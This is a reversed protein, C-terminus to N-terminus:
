KYEEPPVSNELDSFDVIITEGNAKFTGRWYNKDLSVDTITYQKKLRNIYTNFNTERWEGLIKKKEEAIKVQELYRKQINIQDQRTFPTGDDPKPPTVGVRREAEAKLRANLRDIVPQLMKKKTAKGMEEQQLFLRHKAEREQRKKVVLDLAKQKEEKAKKEAEAKRQEDLQSAQPTFTNKKAEDKKLVNKVADVIKKAIEYQKDNLIKRM